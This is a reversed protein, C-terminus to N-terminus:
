ANVASGQAMSFLGYFLILMGVGLGVLNIKRNVVRNSYWYCYGCIGVGVIAPLADTFTSYTTLVDHDKLYSLTGDGAPNIYASLRPYLPYFLSAVTLGCVVSIKRYSWGYQCIEVDVKKKEEDVISKRIFPKHYKYLLGAFVFNCIHKFMSKKENEHMSLSLGRKLDIYSNLKEFVQDEKLELLELCQSLNERNTIMRCSVTLTPFENGFVKCKEKNYFRLREM